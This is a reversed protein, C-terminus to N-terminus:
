SQVHAVGKRASVDQPIQIFAFAYETAQAPLNRTSFAPPIAALRTSPVVERQPLIFPPCFDSGIYFMKGSLRWPKKDKYGCFSLTVNTEKQNDILFDSHQLTNTVIWASM